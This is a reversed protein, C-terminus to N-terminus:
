PYPKNLESQRADDIVKTEAMKSTPGYCNSITQTLNCWMFGNIDTFSDTDTLLVVDSFFRLRRECATQRFWSEGSPERDSTFIRAKTANRCSLFSTQDAITVKPLVFSRRPTSRAIKALM